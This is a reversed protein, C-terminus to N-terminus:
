RVRELFVWGFPTEFPGRRAGPEVLFMADLEHSTLPNKRYVWGLSGRAARGKRDDDYEAALDALEAGAEWRDALEHALDAADLRSRGALEVAGAAARHSILLGRLRIWNNEVLGPALEAPPVRWLVHWGLPSEVPGFPLGTRDDFVAAKISADSEGREFVRYDGGRAASAPDESRERALTAFDEGARLRELLAAARERGATSRDRILIQRCGAHRALRQVVHFGQGTDLPDSVEELEAQSLFRDIQPALVGPPFTGVVPRLGPVEAREAGRLWEAVSQARLLAAARTDRTYPFAFSRVAECEPPEDGEFLPRTLVSVAPEDPGAAHGVRPALHPVSLGAVAFLLPVLNM